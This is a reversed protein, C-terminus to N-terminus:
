GNIRRMTKRQFPIKTRDYEGILYDYSYEVSEVSTIGLDLLIDPIFISEGYVIKEKANKAYEFLDWFSGNTMSSGTISVIDANELLIKNDKPGHLRYDLQDYGTSINDISFPILNETKRLDTIHLNPFRRLEDAGCFGFGVIVIKDEKNLQSMYPAVLSIGRLALVEQTMFPKSAAALAAIGISRERHSPSHLCVEAVELLPKGILKRVEVKDLESYGLGYEKYDMARGAQDHDGIVVNYFYDYEPKLVVKLLNDSSSTGYLGKLKELTPTLLLDLTSL